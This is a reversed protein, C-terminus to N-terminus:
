FYGGLSQNVVQHAYQRISKERGISNEIYDILPATGPAQIRNRLEALERKQVILNHMAVPGLIDKQYEHNGRMRDVLLDSSCVPCDCASFDAEDISVSELMSQSYKGNIAGHLYSSSDFSDVGLAALLPIAQSSIGLVHLPLDGFGWDEM